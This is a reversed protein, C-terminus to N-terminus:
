THVIEVLIGFYFVVNGGGGDGHGDDDDFNKRQSLLTAM